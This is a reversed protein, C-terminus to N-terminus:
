IITICPWAKWHVRSDILSREHTSFNVSFHYPLQLIDLSRNYKLTEVLSLVKKRELHKYSYLSLESLSRNVELMDSLAVTTQLGIDCKGESLPFFIKLEKLTTNMCLSTALYSLDLDCEFFTLRTLNTTTELLTLTDRNKSLDLDSIHLTEISSQTLVTDILLDMSEHPIGRSGISLQTLTSGSLLKNLPVMDELEFATDELNLEQLKPLDALSSLLKNLRSHCQSHNNGVDLVQLHPMLPIISEALYDFSEQTLHCSNLSLCRIQLIAETPLQSLRQLKGLCISNGDLHLSNINGAVTSLSNIGCVLAQLDEARLNCSSFNLSWACNSSAICYGLSYCRSMLDRSEEPYSLSYLIVENDEFVDKVAYEDQQEYLLNVIFPLYHLDDVSSKLVDLITYTLGTLGAVFRWVDSMQGLPSNFFIQEQEHEELQSIYYAALFAKLMHNLFRLELQEDNEHLCSTFMLGLHVFNQSIFQDHCSIDSHIMEVLAMKSLLMIKKHVDPHLDDFSHLSGQMSDQGPNSSALYNRILDFCYLSYYQILTPPIDCNNTNCKHYFEMIISANLPLYMYMLSHMDINQPLSHPNFRQSYTKIHEGHFGLLRIHKMSTISYGSIISRVTSPTATVLKTSKPLVNGKFLKVFFSDDNQTIAHPLHEFSDMIILVDKGKADCIEQILDQQMCSNNYHDLLEQPGEISQIHKNKLDLLFILQYKQLAPIEDWKQCLEWVLQTKGVCQEGEILICETNTDSFIDQYTIPEAKFLLHQLSSFALSQYITRKNLACNIKDRQLM